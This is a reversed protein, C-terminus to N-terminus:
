SHGAPKNQKEVQKLWGGLMKGIEELPESILIYKKNDLSKIEWLVQLFFKALDLKGSARELYITKREKSIYSAIFIAEITEVLLSDIKLGLTYRATKPIHPLFEHWIKYIAM